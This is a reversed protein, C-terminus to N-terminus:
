PKTVRWLGGASWYITTDDVAIGGPIGAVPAIVVPAGGTKDVRMVNEMGVWYVSTSDVAIRHGEGAHEPSDDTALNVPAGGVKPVRWITGCLDCGTFARRTSSWRRPAEGVFMCTPSVLPSLDGGGEPVTALSGDGGLLYLTSDDAALGIAGQKTVASVGGGDLSSSGVGAWQTAWYLDTASATVAQPVGDTTDIPGSPSAISGNVPEGDGYLGFNSWYPVGGAVILDMPGAINGAVLTSAGGCKPVSMVTGMASYVNSENAYFVDTDSVAVSGFGAMSLMEPQGPQTPCASTAGGAGGAGASSAGTAASASSGGGSGASSAGSTAGGHSVSEVSPGCALMAFGTAILGLQKM